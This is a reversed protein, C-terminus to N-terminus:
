SRLEKLRLSVSRAHAELGEARALRQVVPGIGALGAESARQISMSRQFSALSVGSHARAAGGTPLVHNTGSAYDGLSEPTWHGLFVSGATRIGPLWDEAGEVSLILHEPAYANAIEICQDPDDAIIIRANQLAARAIDARPLGELQGGISMEVAVALGADDTVLVVQASTDHEAQALLDSAVFAPRASHDAIVMVESPGAPLDIAPGGPLGAVQRKAEDVYANGPGFIKDVASMSETGYAMAAIAQAGGMQWLTELGAKRAIYVIAPHVGDTGPPTALVIEEVGAVRAPALLMIVTSLLPATGGPVYLGVRRLPRTVLQCTVGGWTEIEIDDQKQAEHFATVVDWARDIANQLDSPIDMDLDSLAAGAKIDRGDFRGTLARLAADGGKRVENLIGAVSEALAKDRAAEPRALAARRGMEDLDTWTLIQM